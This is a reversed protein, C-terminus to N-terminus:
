AAPRPIWGSEPASRTLPRGTGVQARGCSAKAGADDRHVLFQRKTGTATSRHSCRERGGAASARPEAQRTTSQAAAARSAARQQVFHARGRGRRAPRRRQADALLLDDLDGLRHAEVRCDQQEVLRGRREAVRSTVGARGSTQAGARAPHRHDVDGVAHGFQELDGVGARTSRSPASAPDTSIACVCGARDDLHHEALGGLRAAGAPLRDVARPAAPGRPARGSGRRRRRPRSSRAAGPRSGRCRRAQQAGAPGLQQAAIKPASGSSPPCPGSSPAVRRARVGLRHLARGRSCGPSGCPPPGPGSGTWGRCGRGPWGRRCRAGPKM